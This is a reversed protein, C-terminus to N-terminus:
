CPVQLTQWTSMASLSVIFSISRLSYFVMVVILDFDPEM